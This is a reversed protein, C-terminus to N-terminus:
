KVSDSVVVRQAISYGSLLNAPNSSILPLGHYLGKCAVCIVFRSRVADCPPLPATAGPPLVMNQKEEGYTGNRMTTEINELRL